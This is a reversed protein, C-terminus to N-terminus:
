APSLAAVQQLENIRAGIAAQQERLNALELDRAMRRVWDPLDSDLQWAILRDTPVADGKEWQSVRQGSTGLWRGMQALTASHERRAKWLVTNPAM